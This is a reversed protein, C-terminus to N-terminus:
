LSLLTFCLEVPKILPCGALLFVHYILAPETWSFANAKPPFPPAEEVLCCYRKHPPTKRVQQMYKCNIAM